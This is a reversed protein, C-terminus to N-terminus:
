ISGGQSWSVECGLVAGRDESQSYRQANCVQTLHPLHAAEESWDTLVSSILQIGQLGELWLRSKTEWFAEEDKAGGASLTRKNSSNKEM